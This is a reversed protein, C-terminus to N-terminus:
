GELKKIPNTMPNVQALYTFTWRGHFYPRIRLSIIYMLYCCLLTM